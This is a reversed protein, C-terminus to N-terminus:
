REIEKACKNLEASVTKYVIAWQDVTLGGVEAENEMREFRTADDWYSQSKAALWYRADM